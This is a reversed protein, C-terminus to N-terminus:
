DTDERGSTFEDIFKRIGFFILWFDGGIERFEQDIRDRDFRANDFGGTIRDTFREMLGRYVSDRRGMKRRGMRDSLALYRQGVDSRAYDRSRDLWEKARLFRSRNLKDHGAIREGGHTWM